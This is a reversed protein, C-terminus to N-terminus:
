GKALLQGAKRAAEQAEPEFRPVLFAQVQDPEVRLLADDRTILGEHVMDVAIRVAAQASRKGSRTQLMFLTGREVTFEMDQMDHYTAELRRAIEQFETYAQPLAQAMEAIKLPTRIGAVVDEGQANVLFEGFLENEGTMPNRTFAVGTGSDDGMNGFVMTQVNVATGLDHPIKYFNRYDVARKGMWSAFVAGIALRLQELPETPFPKGTERQVVEKFEAVVQRLAAADLDTDQRAGARQKAAEFVEDFKEAPIDQVIRGFMQIFRRYADYAFRENRTLAVLGQVTEDNLGLNLVTDMMGPMSQAAGSRVSVLLPNARDGFRKGTKQEVERLAELAQDWMGPPFQKGADYYANCAETTITFGPPVPLGAQTMQAAAAAQAQAM